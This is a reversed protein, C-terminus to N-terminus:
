YEDESSEYYDEDDDNVYDYTNKPPASKSLAFGAVKTMESVVDANLGKFKSFYTDPVYQNEAAMLYHDGIAIVGSVFPIGNADAIATADSLARVGEAHTAPNGAADQAVKVKAAIQGGYQKLAKEFTKELKTM